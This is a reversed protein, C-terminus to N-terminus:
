EAALKIPMSGTTACDDIASFTVTQTYIGNDDALDLSTRQIKPLEIAIKKGDLSVAYAFLSASSWANYANVQDLNEFAIKFSGEITRKTISKQGVGTDTVCVFDAIDNTITVELDTACVDVGDITVTMGRAVHPLMSSCFDALATSQSVPIFGTSGQLSFDASVLGQSPFTLKLSSALVGRIDVSNAEDGGIVYKAALSKQAVKGDSLHYLGATGDAKATNDVITHNALDITAGDATYSGLTAEYLVNGVLKTSDTADPLVEMSISGSATSKGQLPAGALLSKTSMTERTISDTEPKWSATNYPLVDADAFTVAQKFVTELKYAMLTANTKQLAM